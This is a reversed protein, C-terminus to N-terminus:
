KKLYALVAFENNCMKKWMKGCLMYSSRRKNIEELLISADIKSQLSSQVIDYNQPSTWNKVEEWQLQFTLFKLGLKKM